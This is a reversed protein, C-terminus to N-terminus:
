SIQDHASEICDTFVIRKEYLIPLLLPRKVCFGVHTKGLIELM